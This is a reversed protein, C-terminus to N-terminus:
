KKEKSKVFLGRVWLVLRSRLSLHREIACAYDLTKPFALVSSRHFRTM